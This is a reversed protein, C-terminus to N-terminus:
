KGDPLFQKAKQEMFARAKREAMRIRVETLYAEELSQSATALQEGIEVFLRDQGTAQQLDLTDKALQAALTDLTSM